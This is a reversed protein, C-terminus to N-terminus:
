KNRNRKNGINTLPKCRLFSEYLGCAPPTAPFMNKSKSFCFSQPLEIYVLGGTKTYM